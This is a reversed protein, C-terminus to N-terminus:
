FLNFDLLNSTQGVKNLSFVFVLRKVIYLCTEQFRKSLSFDFYVLLNTLNIHGALTVLKNM